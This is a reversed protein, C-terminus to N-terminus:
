SCGFIKESVATIDSTHVTAEGELLERLHSEDNVTLIRWRDTDILEYRHLSCNGIRYNLRNYDSEPVGLIFHNLHFIVGGHAVIVVQGGACTTLIEQLASIVRNRVQRHSEGGPTMVDLRRESLAAFDAPYQRAVDLFSKGQFEGVHIERLRPDRQVPLQRTSAIAVATQYARQLDSAYIATIPETALRQATLQAERQGRASLPVDVQGTFHGTANGTSQGHRVLTIKTIM